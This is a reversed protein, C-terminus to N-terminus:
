IIPARLTAFSWGTVMLNTSISLLLVICYCFIKHIQIVTSFNDIISSMPVNTGDTVSAVAKDIIGVTFMYVLSYFDSPKSCLCTCM